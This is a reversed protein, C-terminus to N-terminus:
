LSRIKLQDRADDTFGSGVILLGPKLNPNDESPMYFGEANFAPLYICPTASPWSVGSPLAMSGCPFRHFTGGLLRAAKNSCLTQSRSPNLRLCHFSTSRLSCPRSPLSTSSYSGDNVCGYNPPTGTCSAAWWVDTCGGGVALWRDGSYVKVETAGVSSYTCTYFVNDGGEHAWSTLVDNCQAGGSGAIYCNLKVTYGDDFFDRKRAEAESVHVFAGLAVTLTSLFLLCVALRLMTDPHFIDSHV